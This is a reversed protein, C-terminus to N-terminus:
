QDSIKNIKLQSEPKITLLGTIVVTDGKKVGETIQITASDRVGTTVDVFKAAGNEYLIVKKGRAQPIVAQTPVIVANPDADFHL